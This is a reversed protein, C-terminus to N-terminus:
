CFSNWSTPKPINKISLIDVFSNVNWETDYTTKHGHEVGAIYMEWDDLFIKHQNDFLLKALEQESESANVLAAWSKFGILVAFIHQIKMLSLNEENWNFDVFIRNIDFYKPKYDYIGSEDVFQTKYDKFLNKAQLKFFDIHKMVYDKHNGLENDLYKREYDPTLCCAQYLTIYRTNASSIKVRVLLSVLLCARM